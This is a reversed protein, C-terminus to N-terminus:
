RLRSDSWSSVIFPEIQILLDSQRRDHFGHSRPVASPKGNPVIGAPPASIGVNREYASLLLEALMGTLESPRSRLRPPAPPAFLADAVPVNTGSSVSPSGVVAVAAIMRAAKWCHPSCGPGNSNSVCGSSIQPENGAHIDAVHNEQDEIQRQYADPYFEELDRSRQEIGADQHKGREACVSQAIRPEIERQQIDDATEAEQHPPEVHRNRRHQDAHDQAREGFLLKAASERDALTVKPTRRTGMEAVTRAIM